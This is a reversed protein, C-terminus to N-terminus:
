GSPCNEKYLSLDDIAIDGQETGGREGVILINTAEKSIILMVEIWTDNFVINDVFSVIWWVDFLHVFLTCGIREIFILKHSLDIKLM